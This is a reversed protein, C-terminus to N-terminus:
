LLFVCCCFILSFCDIGACKEGIVVVGSGRGEIRRKYKCIQRVYKYTKDGMGAGGGGEGCKEGMDIFAGGRQTNVEVQM